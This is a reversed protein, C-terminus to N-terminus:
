RDDSSRNEELLALELRLIAQELAVTSAGNDQHADDTPGFVIHLLEHVVVREVDHPWPIDPDFDHPDLVWIVASYKVDVRRIHGACDEPLERARAYRIKIDWHELRLRRRWYRVYGNLEKDDFQHRDPAAERPDIPAFISM